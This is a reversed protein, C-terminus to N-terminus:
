RLASPSLSSCFAADHVVWPWLNLKRLMSCSPETLGFFETLVIVKDWLSLNNRGRHGCSHRQSSMVECHM